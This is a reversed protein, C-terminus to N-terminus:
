EAESLSSVKKLVLFSYPFLRLECHASFTAEQPLDPSRVTEVPHICVPSHKEVEWGIRAGNVTVPFEAFNFVMAAPQSDSHYALLM